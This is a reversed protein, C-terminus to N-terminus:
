FETSVGGTSKTTSPSKPKTTGSSSQVTTTSSPPVTTTTTTGTGVEVQRPMMRWISVFTDKHIVKGNASKVTRVVKVSRGGQGPNKILTTGTLLSTNPTTVETQEVIDYFDSTTYSVTRGENTGYITFKTRVGNSSGRILIHHSTDNRFRMNPGGASVTADRGKPYHSIYMSHNKRELIELGAFFAANFLTTSVQCIGGGLQDELEGRIIGPALKYGREETRPGIQKDFNYVEGPALLVDSAYKTTIRVNTQRDATGVWETTFTGLVDKVGMAEAKKTSLKPEVVKVVVEATRDASRLAAETFAEATAERDLSRGNVGPVVWAKTGDSTFTANVPNKAVAKAVKDLLGGMREVSLYPTLTAVGGESVSKFEMFEAIQEPSLTWAQEGFTLKVPTAIMTKAQIIARRNDEVTMSPEEVVTPVKLETTHLTFLLAKLEERLKARDVVLGSKGEIIKIETGDIALGPDVPPIDIERAINAVVENMLVGDVTGKLPIDKDTFYLIFRRFGDVLFNSRRTVDMAQSVALGVDIKTGVDAPMVSWSKQGSTLTIPNQAARDVSRTIAAKAEDRTLGSMSQGAVSVGAHVKGYYLASDILLGLLLVAVVTSAAILIRLRRRGRKRKEAKSLKTLSYGAGSIDLVFIGPGASVLWTRPEEKKCM